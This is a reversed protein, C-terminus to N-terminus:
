WTLWCTLEVAAASGPGLLCPANLVGSMSGEAVVAAFALGM